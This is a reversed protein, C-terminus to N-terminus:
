EDECDGCDCDGWWCYIVILLLLVLGVGEALHIMM